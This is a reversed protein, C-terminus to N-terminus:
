ILPDRRLERKVPGVQLIQDTEKFYKKCKTEPVSHEGQKGGM